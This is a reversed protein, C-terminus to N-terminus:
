NKMAEVSSRHLKEFEQEDAPLFYGVVIGMAGERLVHGTPNLYTATVQMRDGKAVKYGGEKMFLLIPMSLMHGSGDLKSELTAVTQKRTLNTLVLEHGYDHMHGGVGLLIGPYNLTVDGTTVNRGTKLDYSSDGCSKVDLWTPYVSKLSTGASGMKRYDMRVELYAAPYSVATPNHFMSTIRIRDGPRVRYGFGPTAPWDNMEGGAGFIHEQKNPCIFDPRATNYFAVHHLLRSPIVNGKNGILRPHYAIIWGDFPIKLFQPQPQATRMHSTNAPLNLPGLKVTLVQSAADNEVAVTAASNVPMAMHMGQMDHHQALLPVVCVFLCLGVSLCHCRM